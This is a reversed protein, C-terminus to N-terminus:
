CEDRKFRVAKIIGADMEEPTLAQKRRIDKLIGFVKDAKKKLNAKVSKNGSKIM